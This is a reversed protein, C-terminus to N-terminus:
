RPEVVQGIFLPVGSREDRLVVLFPRDVIFEIPSAQVATVSMQIGTAAAAETGEENVEVFSKQWVRSIFANHRALYTRPLMGSFDARQPDFAVRMGLDTLPAKLDTELELKFRPLVLHVNAERLEGLWASMTSPSLASYLAAVTRGSDPLLVYMSFRRGRYPLRVVQFGQRRVYAYRGTRAM